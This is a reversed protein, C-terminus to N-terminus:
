GDADEENEEEALREEEEAWALRLREQEADERRARDEEERRHAALRQDELRREERDFEEAYARKRDSGYRDHLDRNRRGIEADQRGQERHGRWPWSDYETRFTM